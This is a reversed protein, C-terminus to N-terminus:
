EQDGSKITEVFKIIVEQLDSAMEEIREFYADAKYALDKIANYLDIEEMTREFEEDFQQWFAKM